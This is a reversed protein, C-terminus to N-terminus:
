PTTIGEERLLDLMAQKDDRKLDNLLVDLFPVQRSSEPYHRRLATILEPNQAVGAAYALVSGRYPSGSILSAPKLGSDLLFEFQEINGSDLIPKVVEEVTTSASYCRDFASLLVTAVKRDKTVLALRMLIANSDLCVQGYSAHAFEKALIHPRKEVPAAYAAYLLVADHSLQGWNALAVFVLGAVCGFVVRLVVGPDPLPIKEIFAFFYFSAGWYLPYAILLADALDSERPACWLIFALILNAVFVGLATRLGFIGWLLSVSALSYLWFVQPDM